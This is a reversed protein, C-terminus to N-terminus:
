RPDRPEPPSSCVASKHSQMIIRSLPRSFEWAPRRRNSDPRGSWLSSSPNRSMSGTVEKLKQRKRGHM